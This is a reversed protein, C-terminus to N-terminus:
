IIVHYKGYLDRREKGAEVTYILSSRLDRHRLINMVDQSSGGQRTISRGKWHRIMHPTIRKGMKESYRQLIKNLGYGQLPRGYRAGSMCLFLSGEHHIDYEERIHIWNDLVIQFSESWHVMDYPQSESAKAGRIVAGRDCMRIDNVRIGCAEGRRIGTEVLLYVLTLDRSRIAENPQKKVEEILLILDENTAINPYKKRTKIKPVLVFQVDSWGKANTFDFFTKLTTRWASLNNQSWFGVKGASNLYREVTNSQINDLECDYHALAFYRLPVMYSKLTAESVEQLRFETYQHIATEIRM